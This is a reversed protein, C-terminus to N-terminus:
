KVMSNVQHGWKDPRNHDYNAKYQNWLDSFIMLCFPETQFEAWQVLVKVFIVKKRIFILRFEETQFDARVQKEMPSSYVLLLVLIKNHYEMTQNKETSDASKENM